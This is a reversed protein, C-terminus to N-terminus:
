GHRSDRKSDLPHNSIGGIASHVLRQRNHENSDDVNMGDETVNSKRSISQIALLTIKTQYTPPQGRGELRSAEPPSCILWNLGTDYLPSSKPAEQWKRHRQGLGAGIFGMEDTVGSVKLVGRGFKTPCTFCIAGIVNPCRVAERARGM